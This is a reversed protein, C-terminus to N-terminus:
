LHSSNLKFRARSTLFFGSLESVTVFVKNCLVKFDFRLDPAEFGTTQEPINKKESTIAEVRLRLGHRAIPHM